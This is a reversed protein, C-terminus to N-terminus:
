EMFAYYIAILENAHISMKLQSPSFTESGFAVPAYSKETSTIKQEPNEETMLAYGAIKFNADTM